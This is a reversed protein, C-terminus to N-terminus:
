LYSLSIDRLWGVAEKVRGERDRVKGFLEQGEQM